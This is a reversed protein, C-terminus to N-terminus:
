AAKYNALAKAAISRQLKEFLDLEAKPTAPRGDQKQEGARLWTAWRIDELIEPAKSNKVECILAWSYGSGSNTAFGLEKGGVEVLYRRVAAVEQKAREDKTHGDNGFAIVLHRTEDFWFAGRHAEQCEDSLRDVIKQMDLKKVM